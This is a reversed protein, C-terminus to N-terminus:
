RVIAKKPKIGRMKRMAGEQIQWAREKTVGIVEGVEKLTKEGSLSGKPRSPGKPRSKGGKKTKMGRMKQMAQVEIQRVRERCHGLRDGIEELTHEYGDDGLGFRLRIVLEEKPTLLALLAPLRSTVLNRRIAQAEVDAYPDSLADDFTMERRDGTFILDSLSPGNVAVADRIARIEAAKLGTEAAIEPESASGNAAMLKMYVKGLLRQREAVWIPVQINGSHHEDLYRRMYQFIWATAMTAFRTGRRGDYIRAAHLLGITGEQICDWYAYGVDFFSYKVLKRVLPQNRVVFENCVAAIGAKAALAMPIACRDKPEVSAELGALIRDLWSFQLGIAVFAPPNPSDLYADMASLARCTERTIFKIDAHKGRQGHAGQTITSIHLSGHALRSRLMFVTEMAVSTAGIAAALDAELAIRRISLDREEERTLIVVRPHRNSM